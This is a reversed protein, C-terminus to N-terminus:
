TVSAFAVDNKMLTITWAQIDVTDNPMNAVIKVTKYGTKSIWFSFPNYDTDTTPAGNAGSWYMTRRVISQDATKSAGGTVVDFETDGDKNKCLVRAGVLANGDIDLVYATWTKRFKLYMANTAAAKVVDSEDYLVCDDLYHTAAGNDYIQIQNRGTQGLEMRNVTVTTGSPGLLRPGDFGGFVRLNELVMGTNLFGCQGFGRRLIININRLETNASAFGYSSYAYNAGSNVYKGVFTVDTFKYLTATTPTHVSLGHYFTGGWQIYSGGGQVIYHSSGYIHTLAFCYVGCSHESDSYTSENGIELSANNQISLVRWCYVDGWEHTVTTATSGDGIALYANIFYPGVFNDNGDESGVRTVVGWGNSVDDNYLSAITETGTMRLINEGCKINDTQNAGGETFSSFASLRVRVWAYHKLQAHTLGYAWWDVPPIFTVTNSGTTTFGNTNDTVTLTAWTEDNKWYEWVLTHSTAAIATGVNFTINHFAGLLGTEGGKNVLNASRGFYIADNATPSDVFYDMTASTAGSLNASFTVGGATARYIRTFDVMTNTYTNAM